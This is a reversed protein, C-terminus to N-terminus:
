NKHPQVDKRQAEARKLFVSGRVVQETKFLRYLRQQNTVQKVLPQRKM